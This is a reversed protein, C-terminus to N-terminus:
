ITRLRNRSISHSSSCCKKGCRACLIRLPRLSRLSRL